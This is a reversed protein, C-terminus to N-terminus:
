ENKLHIFFRPASGRTFGAASMSRGRVSCRSGAADSVTASTSFIRACSFRSSMMPMRSRAMISTSSGSPLLRSSSPPELEVVDIRDLPCQEHTQTLSLQSRTTGIPFRAIAQTSLHSVSHRGASMVSGIVAIQEDFAAARHIVFDHTVGDSVCDFLGLDLAFAGAVEEPVRHGTVQEIGAGFHLEDLLHEAM